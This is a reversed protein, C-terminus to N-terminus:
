FGSKQRVAEELWRRPGADKKRINLLPNGDGPHECKPIVLGQYRELDRDQM